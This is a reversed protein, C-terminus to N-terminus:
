RLLRTTIALTFYTGIDYCKSESLFLHASAFKGQDPQMQFSQMAIFEMLINM